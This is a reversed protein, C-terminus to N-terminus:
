EQEKSPFDNRFHLEPHRFYIEAIRKDKGGKRGPMKIIVARISM